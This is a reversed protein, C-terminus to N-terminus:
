ATKKRKTAARMANSTKSVAARINDLINAERRIAAIVAKGHKNRGNRYDSLRLQKSYLLHHVRHLVKSNKSSGAGYVEEAILKISMGMAALDEVHGAEADEISRKVLRFQM